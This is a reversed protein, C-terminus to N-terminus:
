GAACCCMCVMLRSARSCSRGGGPKRVRVAARALAEIEAPRASMFPEVCALVEATEMRELPINPRRTESDM